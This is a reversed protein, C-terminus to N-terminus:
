HTYIIYGAIASYVAAISWVVIDLPNQIFRGWLFIYCVGLMFGSIFRTANSGKWLNYKDLGWNLLAPIPFILFM